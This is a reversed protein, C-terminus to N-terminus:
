LVRMLQRMYSGARRAAERMDHQVCAPRETHYFQGLDFMSWWLHQWSESKTRSVVTAELKPTWLSCPGGKYGTSRLHSWLAQSRYHVYWPLIEFDLTQSLTASFLFNPIVICKTIICYTSNLRYSRHWFWRSWNLCKLLGKVPPLCIALCLCM